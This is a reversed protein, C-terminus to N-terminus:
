INELAHKLMFEYNQPGCDPCATGWYDAWVKVAVIQNEASVEQGAGDSAIEHEMLVGGEM